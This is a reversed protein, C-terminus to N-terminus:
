DIKWEAKVITGKGPFSSVSFIGGTSDVRQQMSNLGIGGTKTEKVSEFGKGNDEASLRLWNKEKEVWIKILSCKGHRLANAISEQVLRFFVIKLNEPVDGELINASYEVCIGPYTKMTERSYWSLAPLLGLDDLVSPRLNAMIQRIEAIASEIDRVTEELSMVGVVPNKL